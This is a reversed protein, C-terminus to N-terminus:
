CMEVASRPRLSTPLHYLIQISFPPLAWPTRLGTAQTLSVASRSPYGALLLTNSDVLRRNMMGRLQDLM